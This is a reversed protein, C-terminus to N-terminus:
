LNIEYEQKVFKVIGGNRNIIHVFFDKFLRLIKLFVAFLYFALSLSKNLRANKTKYLRARRHHLALNKKTVEYLWGSFVKVKKEGYHESM